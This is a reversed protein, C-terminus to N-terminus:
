SACPQPQTPPSTSGKGQGDHTGDENGDAVGKERNIVHVFVGFAIITFSATLIIWVWVHSPGTLYETDTFFPMSLIAQVFDATASLSSLIRIGVAFSTAPLFLM